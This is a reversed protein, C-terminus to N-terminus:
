KGELIEEIISFLELHEILISDIEETILALCKIKNNIDALSLCFRELKYKVAENTSLNEIKAQLSSANPLGSIDLKENTPNSNAIKDPSIKKIQDNTYKHVMNSIELTDKARSQLVVLLRLITLSMQAGSNAVDKIDQNYSNM